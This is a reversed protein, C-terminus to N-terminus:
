PSQVERAARYSTVAIRFTEVGEAAPVKAEFPASDGRSISAGVFAIGRGLVKGSAGLAEATVWVDLVDVGIDNFVRGELKTATADRSQVNYTIRFHVQTAGPAAFVLLVGMLWIGLWLSVTVGRERWGAVVRAVTMAAVQLPQRM